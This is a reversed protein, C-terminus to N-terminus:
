ILWIYSRCIYSSQNFSVLTLPKKAFPKWKEEDVATLQLCVKSKAADYPQRGLAIPM